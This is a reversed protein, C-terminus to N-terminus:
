TAGRLMELIELYGELHRGRPSRKGTEYNSVTQRSVGLAAAVDATSVGAMERMARRTEPSPLQRRLTIKHALSQREQAQLMRRPKCVTPFSDLENAGSAGIM